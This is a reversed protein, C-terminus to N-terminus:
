LVCVRHGQALGHPHITLVKNVVNGGAAQPTLTLLLALKMTWTFAEMRGKNPKDSMSDKAAGHWRLGSVQETGKQIHDPRSERDRNLHYATGKASFAWVTNKTSHGTSVNEIYFVSLFIKGKWNM